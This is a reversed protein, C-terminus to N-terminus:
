KGLKELRETIMGDIDDDGSYNNRLSNLYQTAELTKGQKAYLDSLLVFSRAMWYSHPTGTEIYQMIAEECGSYQEKDFMIQAVMYKAEAGEKTRTDKALEEFDPMANDKKGTAMYSKARDYLAERRTEPSTSEDDILEGACSIVEDHKGSKFANRM